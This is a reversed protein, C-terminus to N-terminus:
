LSFAKAMYKRLQDTSAQFAAQEEPSLHLEIIDEVGDRGIVAPVSAFVPEQGYEGDLYVSCPIVKHEDHFIARVIEVTCAAVGFETCGKGELVVYGGQKMEALEKEFDALVFRDGREELLERLPKGAVGLHSWPIMASFGHEGLAYATLSRGDIGWKTSLQRQLRASDLATGTSLVKHVPWDLQHQLYAAVVDAPNSISIIIGDFGSAAIRPYIDKLMGVTDDLMELRSKEPAPPMGVANVIIDCDGMDEIRSYKAEVRHPLYAVADMIDLAEGRAKDEHIDNLLLVDAEGQMALAYAVHSGVNGAGIIGVKRLQIAMKIGEEM